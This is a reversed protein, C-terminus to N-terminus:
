FYYNSGISKIYNLTAENNGLKEYFEISANFM